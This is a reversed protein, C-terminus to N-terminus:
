NPHKWSEIRDEIWDERSAYTGNKGIVSETMETDVVESKYAEEAATRIVQLLVAVVPTVKLNSVKKKMAKSLEIRFMKKRFTM